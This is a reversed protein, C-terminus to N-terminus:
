LRSLFTCSRVEAGVPLVADMHARNKVNPPSTVVFAPFSQCFIGVSSFSMFYTEHCIIQFHMEMDELISECLLLGSQMNKLSFSPKGPELLGGALAELSRPRVGFGKEHMAHSVNVLHSVEGRKISAQGCEECFDILSTIDNDACCNCLVQRFNM